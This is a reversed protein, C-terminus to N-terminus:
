RRFDLRGNTWRGDIRGHDIILGTWPQTITPVSLNIYRGLLRNHGSRRADILAQRAGNAWDFLLYVREGISHVRANGMKWSEKTDGAITPDVAGNWRSSWGGELSDRQGDGCPGCWARANPDDAGGSLEARAAFDTVDVGDPDPADRVGFPNRAESSEAKM